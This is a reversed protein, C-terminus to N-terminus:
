RNISYVLLVVGLPICWFTFWHFRGKELVFLLCRLAFYGVVASVVVGTFLLSWPVMNATSVEGSGAFRNILLVMAAGAIVPVSMLFSFRAAERSTLGMRRAAVITLGSRSLGPVIALTQALGIWAAQRISVTQIQDTNETDTQQPEGMWLVFGTVIFMVGTLRPDMLYKGGDLLVVLVGAIAAPITAVVLPMLSSRKQNLLEVLSRWYILIVALLTGTHLAITLETLDSFIIAEKEFWAEMVVLHGSSSIPLFETIGQVIALTVIKIIDM